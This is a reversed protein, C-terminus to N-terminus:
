IYIYIDSLTQRIISIATSRTLHSNSRMCLDSLYLSLSISLSISLSLSCALCKSPPMPCGAHSLSHWAALRLCISFLVPFDFLSWSWPTWFHLLGNLHHAYDFSAYSSAPFRELGKDLNSKGRRFLWRTCRESRMERCSASRM